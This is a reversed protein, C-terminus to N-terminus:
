NENKLILLGNNNKYEKFVKWNKNKEQFENIARLIGNGPEHGKHGYGDIGYLVTDHFVIYKTVLHSFNELEAKVQDYTHITDIFLLDILEENLNVKESYEQIFLYNINQENASKLIQEYNACGWKEPRLIDISILKKPYAALFAWTSNLERTGLEVITQCEKSLNYLTYLHENIDTSIKSKEELIQKFDYQMILEEKKM